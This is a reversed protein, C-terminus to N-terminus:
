ENGVGVPIDMAPERTSLIERLTALLLDPEIPKALVPWNILKDAQRVLLDAQASVLIVPFDPRRERVDRILEYGQIGPMVQDTILAQYRGSELLLGRAQLSDTIVDVQYGMSSLLEGVMNAVAPEDDLVLIREGQGRRLDRCAAHAPGPLAREEHGAAPFLVRFTTGSGPRTTVLIHGDFEHVIGHVVSLGMGSGKGVPKTTYFPDFMRALVEDPVGTGQDRVAVEVFYGHVRAHCSACVANEVFSERAVVLIEGTDGMADRGNIVLNMVVQQLQVGDVLVAPLTHSIHSRMRLSAPLTPRLMKISGQLLPSITQIKGPSSGGRSFLLMQAILEKAREGATHIQGLYNSLRGGEETVCRRMALDAYGLISTLINNFDHAIGGTLHGIAEMKQAQQLSRQLQERDQEIRKLDTIDRLMAMVRLPQGHEDRVLWARVSIPKVSSDRCFIEKRYSECYGAVLIRTQLVEEDLSHWVPPTIDRYNLGTIENRQYGVIDLFAPNAEEIRGDMSVFFIGDINTDFLARYRKESERRAEEALETQTIDQVVGILREPRGQRDHQLNAEVHFFRVCGDPRYLRVDLSAHGGHSVIRSVAERVSLKDEPHVNEFLEDPTPAGGRPDRDFLRFLEESFWLSREQFDWRWAGMRAIRQAEALLNRSEALAQESQKRSTIDFFLSKIQLNGAVSTAVANVLLSIRSGDPRLYEVEFDRVFGMREVRQIFSATAERYDPATWSYISEGVVDNRSRGGVMSVYPQNADVVVGFQNMTMFGTYTDAVLTRYVLESEQALREASIDVVLGEIRLSDDENIQVQGRESLWRLSGARDRIRYVLQFRGSSEHLASQVARLIDARDEPLILAGFTFVNGSLFHSSGYGSLRRIGESVFEAQHDHHMRRLRCTPDSPLWTDGPPLEYRYVMGALNGILTSLQRQSERAAWMAKLQETLDQAQVIFSGRGNKSGPQLGVRVQAWKIEGERTRFRKELGFVPAGGALAQRCLRQEDQWDQEHSISRMPRGILEEEEFGLLRCFERNADLIEDSENVVCIGLPAHEYITRFRAENEAVDQYAQRLESLDRSVGLLMRHGFLVVPIIRLHLWRSTQRSAQLCFELVTSDDNSLASSLASVVAPRHDPDIAQLWRESPLPLENESVEVLRAAPPNCYMLDRTEADVLWIAEDLQDAIQRGQSLKALSELSPTLPSAPSSAAVAAPLARRRQWAGGLWGGALAGAVM